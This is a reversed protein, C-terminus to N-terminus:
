KPSSVTKGKNTRTKPELGDVGHHLWLYYWSEITKHSIHVRQSNPIHYTQQSLYKLLKKREGYLLAERSILPGLVSLRFLAMPHLPKNM